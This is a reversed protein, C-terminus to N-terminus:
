PIMFNSRLMTYSFIETSNSMPCLHTLTVVDSKKCNVAHIKKGGVAIYVPVIVLTECM